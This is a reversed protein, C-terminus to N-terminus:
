ATKKLFEKISMGPPVAKPKKSPTTNLDWLEKNSQALLDIGRRIGDMIDELLQHDDGLEVMRGAEFLALVTAIDKEQRLLLNQVAEQKDSILCM